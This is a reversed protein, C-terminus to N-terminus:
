AKTRYPTSAPASEPLTGHVVIVLVKARDAVRAATTGLLRDIVHYGHSGVVIADADRSQAADIIARWPETSVVVQTSTEVGLSRAVAALEDLDKSATALLQPRLEDTHHTAAAPPFEQPVDVARFLVLSARYQKALDIATQLVPTTRLSVDLAALIRRMTGIHHM